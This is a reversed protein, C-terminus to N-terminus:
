FVINSLINTTIVRRTTTYSVDVTFIIIIAIIDLQGLLCTKMNLKRFRTKTLCFSPKKVYTTYNNTIKLQNTNTNVSVVSRNNSILYIAILWIFPTNSAILFLLLSKCYNITGCYTLSFNDFSSTCRLRLM